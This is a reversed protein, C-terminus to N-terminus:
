ADPGEMASLDELDIVEIVDEDVEEDRAREDDVHEDLKAAGRDEPEIDTEDVQPADLVDRDVEEDERYQSDKPNPPM